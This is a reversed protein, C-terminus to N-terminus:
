TRRKGALEMAADWRRAAEVAEAEVKLRQADSVAKDSKRNVHPTIARKANLAKLHAGRKSAM